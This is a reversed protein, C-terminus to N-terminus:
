RCSGFTTLRLYAYSSVRNTHLLNSSKPHEAISFTLQSSVAVHQSKVLLKMSMKVAGDTKVGDFFERFLFWMEANLAAHSSDAFPLPSGQILAYWKSNWKICTTNYCTVKNLPKDEM